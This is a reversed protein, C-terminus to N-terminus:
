MCSYGHNNETNQFNICLYMYWQRLLGLSYNVKGVVSLRALLVIPEAQGIHSISAQSQNPNM